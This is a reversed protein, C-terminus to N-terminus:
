HTLMIGAWAALTTVRAMATRCEYRQKEQVHDGNWWFKCTEMLGDWEGLAELCRLRGLALEFNEPEKEQKESYLNYAQEYDHVKEYRLFYRKEQALFIEINTIKHWRFYRPLILSCIQNLNFFFDSFIERYDDLNIIWM